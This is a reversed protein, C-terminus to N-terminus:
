ALLVHLDTLVAKKRLSLLLLFRGEQLWHVISEEPIESIFTGIIKQVNWPM